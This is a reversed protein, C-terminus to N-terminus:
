PAPPGPKAVFRPTATSNAFTWGTLYALKVIKEMKPFNMREATDTTQHYDPHFGTFWWVAPVERLAFPFQDSRQFVNLAADKDWKYNLQLGIARNAQEVAARYAPSYNTGILNLENSTDEGIEILGDTQTSPSENRGIMDFNIVARTTDLPRLPHAVYHYAGLLGREEAAWLAFVVTRRPPAPNAAYARALEIVAATGSANDDAGPRLSGDWTGDHDYHGCYIITERKLAADAGEIMGIVNYTVGRRREALTIRIEATTDPLAMSQPKLDRDIATQLDAPKRGSAAFLETLLADSVSLLPINTEGEALAQPLLRRMRVGGGPIRAMREQSTPHKRVPEAALMVGLAGHRQANLIKLLTNAHRTNGVGNFVSAPDNEQPEHDFVVVIKGRADIGAYDDYGFEPATIGFGAFVVPARVLAENQWGGFVDKGHQWTKMGSGSKTSITTGAPDVRYEIVPVPQLFSDGSLPKLAIKTFEAVGFEVAAESGRELSRRGELAPSALFVTDARLNRLRIADFGPTAAAPVPQACAAAALALLVIGSRLTSYM